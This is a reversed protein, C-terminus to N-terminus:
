TGRFLKPHLASILLANQTSMERRQDRGKQDAKFQEKGGNQCEASDFKAEQEARAQSQLDHIQQDLAGNRAPNSSEAESNDIVASSDPSYVRQYNSEFSEPENRARVLVRLSIQYVDFRDDVLHFM